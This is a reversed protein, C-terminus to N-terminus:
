EDCRYSEPKADMGMLIENKLFCLKAEGAEPREPCSLHHLNSDNDDQLRTM